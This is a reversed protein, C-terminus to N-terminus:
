QYAHTNLICTMLLATNPNWGNISNNSIGATLLTTKPICATLLATKAICAM